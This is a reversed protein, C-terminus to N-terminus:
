GGAGGEQHLPTWTRGDSSVLWRHGPHTYTHPAWWPPTVVFVPGATVRYLEALAQDPDEVHELVHSAIAAGFHGDPWESLDLVDGFTVRDPGHDTGTAASDLNVDGWLTPGLLLSRLSSGPTGAGINLLPRGRSDAARRASAAVFVPRVIVDVLYAGAIWAALAGLIGRTENM